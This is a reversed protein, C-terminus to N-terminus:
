RTIFTPQYFTTLGLKKSWIQLNKVTHSILNLKRTMEYLNWDNAHEASVHIIFPFKEFIWSDLKKLKLGKLFSINEAFFTM